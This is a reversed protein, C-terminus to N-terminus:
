CVVRSFITPEVVHHQLQQRSVIRGLLWGADLKLALSTSSHPVTTAALVQLRPAMDQLPHVLVLHVLAMHLLATRRTSHRTSSHLSRLLRLVLPHEQLVALSPRIRGFNSRALGHTSSPRQRALCAPTTVLVEPTTVLMEPRTALGELMTLNSSSNAEVAV